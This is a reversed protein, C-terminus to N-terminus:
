SNLPLAWVILFINIMCVSYTGQSETVLEEAAKSLEAERNSTFTRRDPDASMWGMCPSVQLCEIYAYFDSYTGSGDFEGFPYIRDHLTDWLISGQM